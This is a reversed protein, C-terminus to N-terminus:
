RGSKALPLGDADVGCDSARLQNVFLPLVVVCWPELVFICCRVDVDVRMGRLGWTAPSSEDNDVESSSWTYMSLGQQSDGAFHTPYMSFKPTPEEM